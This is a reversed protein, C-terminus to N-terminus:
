HKKIYRRIINLLFTKFNTLRHKKQIIKQAYEYTWGDPNLDNSINPFNKRTTKYLIQPIGIGIGGKELITLWLDWDALRKINPDFGPFWSRRILSITSIFNKIKLKEPNFPQMPIIVGDRNISCYAYARELNDELTKIMEELFSPLLEVDDDCFLLYKGISHKFGENRAASAGIHNVRIFRKIPYKKIKQFIDTDSGDDVIITEYYNYTQNQISRLTRVLSELRNRTPIIISVLKQSM